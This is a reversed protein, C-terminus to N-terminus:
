TIIPNGLVGLSEQCLRCYPLALLHNWDLNIKKNNNLIHQILILEKM